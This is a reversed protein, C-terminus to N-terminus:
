PMTGYLYYEFLIRTGLDLDSSTYPFYKELFKRKFGKLDGKNLKRTLWMGWEEDTKQKKM